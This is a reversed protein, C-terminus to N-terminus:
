VAVMVVRSIAAAPPHADSTQITHPTTKKKEMPTSHGHASVFVIPNSHKTARSHLWRLVTGQDNVRCGGCVKAM